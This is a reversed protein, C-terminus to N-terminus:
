EKTPPNGKFFVKSLRMKLSASREKFSTRKGGSGPRTSSSSGDGTNITDKKNWPRSRGRRLAACCGGFESESESVLFQEEQREESLTVINSQPSLEKLQEPHCLSITRASTASATSEKQSLTVSSPIIVEPTTTDDNDILSSPQEAIDLRNNNEAPTPEAGSSKPNSSDECDDLTYISDKETVRTTEPYSKKMARSLNLLLAEEEGQEQDPEVIEFHDQSQQQPATDFIASVSGFAEEKRLYTNQDRFTTKTEQDDDDDQEQM